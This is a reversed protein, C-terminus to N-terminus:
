GGAPLTLVFTSGRGPVSVADLSGGLARAYSASLALGLGTGPVPTCGAGPVQVFPDFVVRREEETMGIGTDSVEFRIVQGGDGGAARVRVEGSSTFKLANSVLNRLIQAVKGADSVLAPLEDPEEVVLAVDASHPMQHMLRALGTLVAGVDISEARVPVEHAHRAAALGDNVVRLAESITTAITTLDRELEPPLGCAHEARVAELIGEIAYLPTRLEHAVAAAHAGDRALVASLTENQAALEQSLLGIASETQALALGLGALATEDAATPLRERYPFPTLDACRRTRHVPDRFRATRAEVDTTTGPPV